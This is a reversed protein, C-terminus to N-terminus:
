EGEREQGEDSAKSFVSPAALKVAEVDRIRKAIADIEDDIKVVAATAYTKMFRDQFPVERWCKKCKLISLKGTESFPVGSHFLVRHGCHVCRIIHTVKEEHEVGKPFLEQRARARWYAEEVNKATKGDISREVQREKSGKAIIVRAEERNKEELAAVQEKSFSDSPTDGIIEARKKEIQALEAEAASRIASSYRDRKASM